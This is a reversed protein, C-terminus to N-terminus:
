PSESACRHPSVPSSFDAKGGICPGYEWTIFVFLFFTFYANIRSYLMIFEIRLLCISLYLIHLSRGPSLVAYCTRACTWRQFLLIVSGMDLRSPGAMKLSIAHMHQLPTRIILRSFLPAISSPWNSTSYYSVALLVM